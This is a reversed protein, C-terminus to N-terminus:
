QLEAQETETSIDIKDETSLVLSVPFTQVLTAVVRDNLMHIYSCSYINVKM